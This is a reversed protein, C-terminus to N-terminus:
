ELTKMSEVSISVRELFREMMYYSLLTNSPIGESLERNRLWDKLQKPSNFKMSYRWM